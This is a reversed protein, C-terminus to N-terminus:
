PLRLTQQHVPIYHKEYPVDPNKFIFKPLRNLLCHLTSTILTLSTLFRPDIIISFPIKM